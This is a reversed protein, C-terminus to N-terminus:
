SVVRKMSFMPMKWALFRLLLTALDACFIGYISLDVIKEETLAVM